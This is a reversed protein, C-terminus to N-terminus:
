QQHPCVGGNSRAGMNCNYCQVCLGFNKPYNNKKAWEFINMHLKKLEKRHAAGDNNKHGMTLFQLINNNCCECSPIEQSYKKLCELQLFRYHKRHNAANSVRVEISQDKWLIRPYTKYYKKAFLKAKIPDKYPM